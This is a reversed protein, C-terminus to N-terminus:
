SSPTVLTVSAIIREFAPILSGVLGIPENKKKPGVPTPLVSSAFAKASAKNSSSCFMIRSSILSYM